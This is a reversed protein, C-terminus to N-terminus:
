QDKVFYTFYHPNRYQFFEPNSDDFSLTLYDDEFKLVQYKEGRPDQFSYLYQYRGRNFKKKWIKQKKAPPGAREAMARHGSWIESMDIRGRMSARSFYRTAKFTKDPNRLKNLAIRLNERRLFQGRRSQDPCFIHVVGSIYYFTFSFEGTKFLVNLWPENQIQAPEIRKSLYQYIDEDQEITRYFPIDKRNMVVQTVDNREVAERGDVDGVESFLITEVAYLAKMLEPQKMWFVYSDAEKNLVYDKLEFTAEAKQKMTFQTKTLGIKASESSREKSDKIIRAYYDAAQKTRGLWENLRKLQVRHGRSLINKVAALVYELDYRINESIFDKQKNMELAVTDITSRLFSDSRSKNPDLAGDELIKRLFFIDNAKQKYRSGLEKYKDFDKRNNFHDVPFRYSLLFPIEKIFTDFEKKFVELKARSEKLNKDRELDTQSLQYKKKISLLLSQISKLNKVLKRYNPFRKRKKLFSIQEQIWKVKDKIIPLHKKITAIDVDDNLEPLYYGEGRYKKLLKEYMHDSGYTCMKKFFVKHLELYDQIIENNDTSPIELGYTFNTFLLLLLVSIYKM